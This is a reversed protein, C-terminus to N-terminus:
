IHPTNLLKFFYLNTIQHISVKKPVSKTPNTPSLPRFCYYCKLTLLRVYLIQLMGRGAWYELVKWFKIFFGWETEAVVVIMAIVVAYCRFIGDFVGYGNRFSRFASYVNVAICLIAAVSTVFSLVRCTLLFSDARARVRTASSVPPPQEVRRSHSSEGLDGDKSM